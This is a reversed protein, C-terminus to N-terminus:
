CPTSLADEIAGPLDRGVALASDEVAAIHLLLDRRRQVVQLDHEPAAPVPERIDHANVVVRGIDIGDQLM